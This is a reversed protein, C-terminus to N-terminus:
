GYRLRVKTVMGTYDWGLGQIQAAIVPIDVSFCKAFRSGQIQYQSFLTGWSVSSREVFIVSLTFAFCIFTIQLLYSVLIESTSTDVSVASM